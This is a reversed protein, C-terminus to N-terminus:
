LMMGRVVTGDGAFTLAEEQPPSEEKKYGQEEQEQAFTPMVPQMVVASASDAPDLYPPAEPVKAPASPPAEPAPMAEPPAAPAQAQAQAQAPPAAPPAPPAAPAAEPVAEPVALQQQRQHQRQHQRLAYTATSTVSITSDEDTMAKGTDDYHRMEMRCEAFAAHMAEQALRTKEHIGMALFFTGTQVAPKSVFLRWLRRFFGKFSPAKSATGRRFQRLSTKYEREVIPSCQGLKIHGDKPPHNALEKERLLQPWDDKFRQFSPLLEAEFYDRVICALTFNRDEM